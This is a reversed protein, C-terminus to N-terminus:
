ESLEGTHSFIMVKKVGEIQKLEKLLNEINGEKIKAEMTKESIGSDDLVNNRTQFKSCYKKLASNIEAHSANSHKLIIVYPENSIIKKSLALLVISIMASSVASLKYFQVGNVIGAAIAWFLYTIDKPDKVPARFRVISLAGVMGLSLALNGGIAMVILSSVMTAMILTINFNRSYLIGSYTKKYIYFILLGTAFSIFLAIVIDITTLPTGFTKLVSNSFLDAFNLQAM